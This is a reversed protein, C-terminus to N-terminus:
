RLIKKFKVFFKIGFFVLFIVKIAPYLGLSLVSKINKLFYGWRNMLNADLFLNRYHIAANVVNLISRKDQNDVKYKKLDNKVIEYFKLQKSYIVMLEDISHYDFGGSSNCSHQRYKMLPINLYSLKGISSAKYGIWWDESNLSEPIPFIQTMFEHKSFITGGSVINHNLIKRLTIGKDSYNPLFNSVHNLNEGVVEFGGWVLDADSKTIHEMQLEVRSLYNIDDGGLIAIFDGTAMEFSKNFAFVKGKNSSFRHKVVRNDSSLKSLINWTDDTSGDDTVCVEINAYSQDLCSQVCDQIFDEENYAAIIFSVKKLASTHKM